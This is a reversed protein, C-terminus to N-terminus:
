RFLMYLLFIILICTVISGNIRDQKNTKGEIGVMMASFLGGVLGGIHAYNDIYPLSFGIFLNLLIVPLIESKMVSGLYLRYFYGFYLIAGMLGFIAGSAGVSSISDGNLVGSLLSSTIISILYVILYKTKGLFTELQTGIIYLSYMNCFLHILGGHFFASTILRYYEHNKVMYSNMSFDNIDILGLINSILFVFINIAILAYTVTIRKKSFTKEYIKNKRDTVRNIDDTVNIFFDFPNEIDTLDEKIMPFLEILDKSENLDNIGTMDFVKINKTETKCDVNEGINLFITLCKCHFNLTKRKIQKMVNKIKFLDYDYQDNNHIYNANIRIVSYFNNTNELWIENQTGNVIVPQYDEKTIFYHVLRMTLEDMPNSELKM